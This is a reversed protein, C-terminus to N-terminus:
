AGVVLASRMGLCTFFRVGAGAVVGAGAGAGAVVGAVVGVGAGAGAGEDRLM